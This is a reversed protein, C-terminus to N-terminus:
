GRCGVGKIPLSLALPVACGYAKLSQFLKFMNDLPTQKNRKAKQRRLSTWASPLPWFIGCLFNITCTAGHCRILINKVKGLFAEEGVCQFVLPNVRFREIEDATHWLYHSKCRLKFLLERRQHYYAALWWFSTLHLRLCSSAESAEAESFVLSGQDILEIVRQLNYACAALINVM